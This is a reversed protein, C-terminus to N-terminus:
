VARPMYDEPWWQTFLMDEPAGRQGYAYSVYERKDFQSIPIWVDVKDAEQLEAQDTDVAFFHVLNKYREYEDARAKMKRAIENVIKSGCGGLGVFFHPAIKMEHILM